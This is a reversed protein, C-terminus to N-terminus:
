SNPRDAMRPSQWLTAQVHPIRYQTLDRPQSNRATVAFDPANLRECLLLRLRTPPLTRLYAMM